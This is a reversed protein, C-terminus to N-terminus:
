IVVELERNVIDEYLYDFHIKQTGNGPYEFYWRKYNNGFYSGRFYGRTPIRLFLM